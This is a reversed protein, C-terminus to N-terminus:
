KCKKIEEVPEPVPQKKKDKKEKDNVVVESVTNNQYALAYANDIHQTYPIGDSDQIFNNDHAQSASQHRDRMMISKRSSGSSPILSSMHSKSNQNNGGKMDQNDGGLGGNTKGRQPVKGLNDISGSSKSDYNSDQLNGYM